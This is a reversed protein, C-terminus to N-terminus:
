SQESWTISFNHSGAEAGVSVLLDLAAAPVEVGYSPSHLTPKIAAYAVFDWELRVVLGPMKVTMGAGDFEPLLGPALHFHWEVRDGAQLQEIRDQIGVSDVAIRVKRWSRMGARFREFGRHEAEWESGSGDDSFRIMRAHAHDPMVFICNRKHGFGNQEWGNVQFVNHSATSRYRNRIEPDPTYVGTGRDVFIDRGGINLVFSLQDCHAHAGGQSVAGARLGVWVAGRRVFYFGGDTFSCLEPVHSDPLPLEGRLLLRNLGGGFGCAGATLYRHDSGDDVGAWLLRGSDNDGLQAAKGGPVSYAAVFNAMKGLRARYSASFPNHTVTALTDAWLFMEMVMRHYNTSTEYNTGDSNIQRTMEHECWRKAFRWWHGGKATGKFYAGIGLLGVLNAIFHNGAMRGRPGSWELHREVQLGHQWLSEDLRMFFDGDDDNAIRGRFLQASVLWNVARMGVDMACAWNVGVGVPNSHLWHRIQAKWEVYYRDDSRGSDALGLAAFHMCRSLEWAVKVDVGPPQNDWRSRSYDCDPNWRYGSKFDRHWDIEAGLKVLGSGLLDVQHAMAREAAAEVAAIEEVGAHDSLNVTQKAGGVWPASELWASMRGSAKAKRKLVRYALRDVKREVGGARLRLERVLRRQARDIFHICSTFLM